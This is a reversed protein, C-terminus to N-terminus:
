VLNFHLNCHWSSPLCPIIFRCLVLLLSLLFKPHITITEPNISQPAHFFGLFFFFFLWTLGSKCNPWIKPEFQRGVITYNMKWIRKKDIWITAKGRKKRRRERWLWWQTVFRMHLLFLLFFLSKKAEKSHVENAPPLPSPPLSPLLLPPPLTKNPNWGFPQKSFFFQADPPLSLINLATIRSKQVNLDKKLFNCWSDLFNRRRERQWKCSHMHPSLPVVVGEENKTCHSPSSAHRVVIYTCILMWKIGGDLGVRVTLGGLLTPLLHVFPWFQVNMCPCM